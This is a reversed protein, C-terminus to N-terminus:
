GILVEWDDDFVLEGEDQVVTTTLRIKDGVDFSSSFKGDVQIEFVSGRVDIGNHSGDPVHFNTGGTENVWKNGTYTFTFITDGWSQRISVIKDKVIIEDGAEFDDGLKLWHSEDSENEMELRDFLSTFSKGGGSGITPAVMAVAVILLALILLAGILTLIRKDLM